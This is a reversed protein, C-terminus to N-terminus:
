GTTTSALNKCDPEKAAAKELDANKLNTLSNGIGSFSKEVTSGIGVAAARFATPSGTPLANASSEATTLAAKMGAFASVLAASITKGNSVNPTGASKLQTLAKDADAAVSGLFDQLAKKGSAPDKVGALNLSGAKAAVDKQFPGVADCIAKAYSAASVGSSSSGCGAIAVSALAAAILFRRPAGMARPLM